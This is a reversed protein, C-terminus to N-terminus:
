IAVDWPSYSAGVLDWWPSSQLSNRHVAYSLTSGSLLELSYLVPPFQLHGFLSPPLSLPKVSSAPSSADRSCHHMSIRLRLNHPFSFLSPELFLLVWLIESIGGTEHARPSVQALPFKSESGKWRTRWM